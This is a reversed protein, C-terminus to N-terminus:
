GFTPTAELIERASQACSYLLVGGELFGLDAVASGGDDRGSGGGDGSPDTPTPDSASRETSVHMSQDTARGVDPFHMEKEKLFADVWAELHGKEKDCSDKVDQVWASMQKQEENLADKDWQIALQHKARLRELAHLHVLETQVRESDLQQELERIM